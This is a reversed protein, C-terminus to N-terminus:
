SQLSFFEPYRRHTSTTFLLLLIRKDGTKTAVTAQTVNPLEFGAEPCVVSFVKAVAILSNLLDWNAAERL